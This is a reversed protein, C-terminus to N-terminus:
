GDTDELLRRLRRRGKSLHVRVTGSTIGLIAAVERTSYGAYFRLILAARQKVTLGRLAWLLANPLASDSPYERWDIPLQKSGRQMEGLAIRFAARWIWKAPSHLADGRSLAQAFAEAMADDAIDRRGTFGLLSRWLKAGEKRYLAELKDRTEDAVLTETRV